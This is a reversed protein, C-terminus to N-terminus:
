APADEFGKGVYKVWLHEGYENGGKYCPADGYCHLCDGCRDCFDVGCRPEADVIRLTEYPPIDNAIYLKM